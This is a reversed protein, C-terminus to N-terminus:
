TIRSYISHVAFNVRTSNCIVLLSLVYCFALLYKGDVIGIGNRRDLIVRQLTGDLKSRRINSESVDSWYVMQLVTLDCHYYALVM